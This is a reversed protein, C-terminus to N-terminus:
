VGDIWALMQGNARVGSGGISDRGVTLALSGAETPLPVLHRCKPSWTSGVRPLPVAIMLGLVLFSICVVGVVCVRLSIGPGGELGSVCSKLPPSTSSFLSAGSPRGQPSEGTAWSNSRGTAWRARPTPLWPM